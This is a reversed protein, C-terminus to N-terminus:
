TFKDWNETFQSLCQMLDAVPIKYKELYIQEMWGEKLAIDILVESM